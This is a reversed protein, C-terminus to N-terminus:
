KSFWSRARDLWTPKRLGELMWLDSTSKDIAYVLSKGDPTLGLRIGPGFFSSPVLNESLEKITKQRLTVPDISFLTARNQGTRSVGYLLKGDKSFALYDTQFEGLFKESKGDSSIVHWGQNDRFTIWDGAPSWDSLNVANGLDRLRTPTSNGNTKVMMLAFSVGENQIYVFRSGDPSWSGSGEGKSEANTLRVPAGGKLSSVWLRSGVPPADRLYIVREGDPSIAPAIFWNTTGQPFDAPRVILREEGDAERVWVEYHGNRDSAWVLNGQESSRSPMMEMRGTSILTAASGDEVSISVIDFSSKNEIYVLSRGDPAVSPYWEGSSGNTLPVLDASESYAMWLHTPSNEDLGFAVVFHRSDPMWSFPPTGPLRPLEQLLRRPPRSGPPYPLLWNEEMGNAEDFLLLIKKGDPSFGIQPWDRLSDTAFPAPTYTRALSGPPESIEVGYLGNKGKKFSVLSKGDPSLSSSWSSWDTDRIFEPEGGVTAVSYLQLHTPQRVDRAILILIQTQDAAFGFLYVSVAEHTLQISAPSNLYRIFLQYTGNVKATYAISKGDPSWKGWFVGTAIPTFRYHAMNLGSSTRLYVFTGSVLLVGSCVASIFWLSRRSLWGSERPLNITAQGNRGEKEQPSSDSPTEEARLSGPSEAVHNGRLLNPDNAATLNRSRDESVEVPCIFRYGVTAVTEIYRPSRIDDGLLSRLLWICRTLSGETVAADGWVSNLLEEKSILRQPNHLLFLLARFAKPEVTLVKGAKTLSFERERVEVDDFRFVFSKIAM